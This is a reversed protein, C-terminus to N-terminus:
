FAITEFSFSDLQEMFDQSLQPIETPMFLGNDDPLGKMVAEALTVTATKNNTSYLRM